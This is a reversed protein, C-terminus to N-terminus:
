ETDWDSSGEGYTLSLLSEQEIIREYKETCPGCHSLPFDIEKKCDPCFHKSDIPTPDINLEM